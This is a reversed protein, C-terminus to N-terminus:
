MIDVLLDGCFRVQDPVHEAAGLVTARDGNVIAPGLFAARADLDLVVRNIPPCAADDVTTEESLGDVQASM